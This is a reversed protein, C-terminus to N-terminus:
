LLKLEGLAQYEHTATVAVDFHVHDSERSNADLAFIRADGGNQKILEDNASHVGRNISVLSNKIFEELEM